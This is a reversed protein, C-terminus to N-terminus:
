QLIMSLYHRIRTTRTHDEQWAKLPLWIYRLGIFRAAIRYRVAFEEPTIRIETEGLAQRYYEAQELTPFLHPLDLYFSGYRPLEWDIFYPTNEYIMVNSPNLDAHVLTLMNNEQYLADMEDAIIAAAAEVQPIETGFLQIFVSNHVVREWAPRWFRQQIYTTVYSRDARPLWSFAERQGRNAVHIAALGQAKQLLLSPPSAQESASEPLPNLDQLCLLAPGDTTLDLTHSFPIAQQGQENLITLISRELLGAEKTVLSAQKPGQPAKLTIQHRQIRAGSLGPTIPM